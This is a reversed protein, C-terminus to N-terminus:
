TRVGDPDLNPDAAVCRATRAQDPTECAPGWVEEDKGIPNVRMKRIVIWGEGGPFLEVCRGSAKMAWADLVRVAWLARADAELVALAQVGQASMTYEPVCERLWQIAQRQHKQM